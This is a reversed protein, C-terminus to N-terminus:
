IKTRINIDNNILIMREEEINFKELEDIPKM